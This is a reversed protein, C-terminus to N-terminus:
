GLTQQFTSYLIIVMFVLAIVFHWAWNKILMLSVFVAIFALNRIIVELNIMDTFTWMILPIVVLYAIHSLFLPYKNCDYYDWMSLNSKITHPLSFASIMFVTMPLLSLIFLQGANKLEINANVEFFQWWANIMFLFAIVAWLIPVIDVKVHKREIIIRHASVLLDTASLAYIIGVFPILLEFQEM